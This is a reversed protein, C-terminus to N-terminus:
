DPNLAYHAARRIKANSAGNKSLYETFRALLVVSSKGEKSRDFARAHKQRDRASYKKSSCLEIWRTLWKSATNDDKVALTATVLESENSLPSTNGGLVVPSAYAELLAVALSSTQASAAEPAALLKDIAEELKKVREELSQFECLSPLETVVRTLEGKENQKRHAFKPM